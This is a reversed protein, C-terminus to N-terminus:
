GVAGGHVVLAGEQSHGGHDHHGAGSDVEVEVLRGRLTAIHAAGNGVQVTPALNVKAAIVIITLLILQLNLAEARILTKINAGNSRLALVTNSLVPLIPSISTTTAVPPIAVVIAPLILAIIVPVVVAVVVGPLTCVEGIGM